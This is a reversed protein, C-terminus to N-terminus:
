KDFHSLIIGYSIMSGAAKQIFNPTFSFINWGTIIVRKPFDNALTLLLNRQKENDFKTLAVLNYVGNKVKLAEKHVNVAYVSCVYFATLFVGLLISQPLAVILELRERRIRLLFTTVTFISSTMYGFLLLILLSLANEFQEVGNIINNSYKQYYMILTVSKNIDQLAASFKVLIDRLTGLTYCCLVVVFGPLLYEQNLCVLDSILLVLCNQWHKQAKWGFFNGQVMLASESSSRCITFTLAFFTVPIIFCICFGSLLQTRKKFTRNPQLEYSTGLLRILLSFIEKRKHLLVIRIVSSFFDTMFVTFTLGLPLVSFYKILKLLDITVYAFFIMTSTYEFIVRRLERCKSKEKFSPFVYAVSLFVKTIFRLDLLEPRSQLFDENSTERTM